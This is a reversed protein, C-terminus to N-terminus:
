TPSDARKNNPKRLTTDSPIPYGHAALWMALGARLVAQMTVHNDFAAQRLTAHVSDKILFVISKMNERDRRELTIGVEKFAADRSARLEQLDAINREIKSHEATARKQQQALTHAAEAIQTKIQQAQKKGAPSAMFEKHKVREYAHVIGQASYGGGIHQNFFDDPIEAIRMIQYMSADSFGHEPFTKKIKRFYAMQTECDSRDVSSFIEAIRRFARLKILMFKRMSTDDKIQKYYAAIADAQKAIERCDDVSHCVSIAKHMRAYLAGADKTTVLAKM